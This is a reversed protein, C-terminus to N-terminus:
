PEHTEHQILVDGDIHGIHQNLATMVSLEDPVIHRRASRIYDDRRNGFLLVANQDAKVAVELRNRRAYRVAM